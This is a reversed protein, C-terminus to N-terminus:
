KKGNPVKVIFYTVTGNVEKFWHPTNFPISIVDGKSLKHTTGGDIRPARIEGPGTNKGGVLKGGTVFTAAGDVIYFIDSDWDHSEAEGAKNRKNIMVTYGNGKESTTPTLKELAAQFNGAPYYQASSQPAKAAQPAFLLWLALVINM